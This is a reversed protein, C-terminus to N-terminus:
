FDELYESITQTAQCVLPEIRYQAPGPWGATRRQICHSYPLSYGGWRLPVVNHQHEMMWLITSHEVAAFILNESPGNFVVPKPQMGTVPQM